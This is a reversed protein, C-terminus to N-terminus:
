TLVLAHWVVFNAPIVWDVDAFDEEIPVHDYLLQSPSVETGDPEGLIELVVGVNGNLNLLAGLVIKFSSVILHINKVLDGGIPLCLGPLLGDLSIVFAALKLSPELVLAERRLDRVTSLQQVGKDVM